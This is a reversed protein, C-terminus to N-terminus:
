LIRRRRQSIIPSSLRVFDMRATALSSRPAGAVISSAIVWRWAPFPGFIPALDILAVYAEFIADRIDASYRNREVQDIPIGPVFSKNNPFTQDSSGTLSVKIAVNASCAKVASGGFVSTTSMVQLPPPDSDWAEAVGGTLELDNGLFPMLQESHWAVVGTVLAELQDSTTPPQRNLFWFRNELPQGGFAFRLHVQAGNALPVFPTM